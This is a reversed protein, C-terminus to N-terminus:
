GVGGRRDIDSGFTIDSGLMVRELPWDNCLLMLIYGCIQKEEM